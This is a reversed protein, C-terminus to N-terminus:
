PHNAAAKTGAMRFLVFSLCLPIASAMNMDAIFLAIAFGLWAMAGFSFYNVRPCTYRRLYMILALLSWAGVFFIDLIM